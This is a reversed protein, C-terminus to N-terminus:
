TYLYTRAQELRKEPIKGAIIDIGDWINIVLKNIGSIDQWIGHSKYILFCLVDVIYVSRNVFQSDSLANKNQTLINSKLDM